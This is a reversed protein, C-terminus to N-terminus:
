DCSAEQLIRNVDDGLKRGAATLTLRHSRDVSWLGGKTGVGIVTQYEAHSCQDMLAAYVHGSPQTGGTEALSSAIAAILTQAKDINM